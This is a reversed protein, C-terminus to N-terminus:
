PTPSAIAPVVGQDDGRYGATRVTAQQSRGADAFQRVREKAGEIKERVEDGRGDHALWPSLLGIARELDSTAAATQGAHRVVDSRAQLVAALLLAHDLSTPFATNMAEAVPM